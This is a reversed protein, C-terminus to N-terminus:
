IAQERLMALEDGAKEVDGALKSVSRAKDELADHLARRQAKLQRIEDQLQKLESM